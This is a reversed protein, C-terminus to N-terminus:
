GRLWVRMCFGHTVVDSFGPPRLTLMAFYRGCPPYQDGDDFTSIVSKPPPVFQEKHRKKQKKKQM